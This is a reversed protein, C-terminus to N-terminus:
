KEMWLFRATRLTFISCGHRLQLDEVWLRYAPDARLVERNQWNKYTRWFCLWNQMWVRTRKWWRSPKYQRMSHDLFWFGEKLLLFKM